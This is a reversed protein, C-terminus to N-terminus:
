TTARCPMFSMASALTQWDLGDATDLIVEHAEAQRSARQTSCILLEVPNKKDARAPASVIICPHPKDWGPPQCTFVDFPKM